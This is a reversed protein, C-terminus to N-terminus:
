LICATVQPKVLSFNTALKKCAGRITVTLVKHDLLPDSNSTILVLTKADKAYLM